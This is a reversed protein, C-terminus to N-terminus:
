NRVIIKSIIHKELDHINYIHEIIEFSKKLENQASMWGKGDTIWIFKFNKIYQSEIAINRYSRAIENLKSGGTTYFNTEIGYVLNETKIVFDFRKVIKDRNSLTSLDIQFQKEINNISMEKFYTKKNIFGAKIIHNELLGEMIKGGRNKRGNSDLGTEVGTVYDILNNIIHKELLDFLGTKEM